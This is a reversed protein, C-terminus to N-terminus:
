SRRLADAWIDEFERQDIAHPSFQPDTAIESISPMKTTSLFVNRTTKSASAIGPLGTRFIYVKRTEWGEDDIESYLISPEESFTHHWCVKM